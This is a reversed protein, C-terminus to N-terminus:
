VGTESSPKFTKEILERFEEENATLWSSPQIGGNMWDAVSMGKRLFRQHAAAKIRDRDKEELTIGWMLLRRWQDIEIGFLIERLNGTLVETYKNHERAYRAMEDLRRIHEETAEISALVDLVVEKNTNFM